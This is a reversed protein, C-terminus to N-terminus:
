SVSASAAVTHSPRSLQLRPANHATLPNRAFKGTELEGLWWEIMRGV